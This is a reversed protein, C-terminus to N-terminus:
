TESSRGGVSKNKLVDLHYILISLWPPIISAQSFRLVQLYVQGLAVRYVVLGVNVSRVRVRAEATLSRHSAAQDM